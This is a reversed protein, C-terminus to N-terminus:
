HFNVWGTISDVYGEYKGTTTNFRIMGAVPSSPRSATTGTQIKMYNGGTWTVDGDASVRLREQSSSGIIVTNNLAETSSSQINSGIFTNGSQNNSSSAVNYGIYVNNSRQTTGMARGAYYGVITSTTLNSQEAASRGVAVSNSFGGSNNVANMGVVVANSLSGANRASNMGIAVSFTGGNTLQAARAGIATLYLGNTNTGDGAQYGVITSYNGTGVTDVNNIVISAFRSASSMYFNGSNTIKFLDSGGSNEILLADTAVSTDAGVLHLKALPNTTNVGIDGDSKITM